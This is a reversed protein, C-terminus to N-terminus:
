QPPEPLPMWHSPECRPRGPMEFVGNSEWGARVPDAKGNVFYERVVYRGVLVHPMFEPWWLLVEVGDKPATEIPQWETM